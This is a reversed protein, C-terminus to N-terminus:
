CIEIGGSRNDLVFQDWAPVIVLALTEANMLDVGAIIENQYPLYATLAGAEEKTLTEFHEQLM